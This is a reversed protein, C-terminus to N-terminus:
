FIIPMVILMWISHIHCFQIRIVSLCLELLYSVNTSFNQYRNQYGPWGGWGGGLESAAGGRARRHSSVREQHRADSRRTTHSSYYKRTQSLPDLSRVHRVGFLHRFRRCSASTERNKFYYWNMCRLRTGWVTGQFIHHLLSM